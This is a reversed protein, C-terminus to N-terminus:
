NKEYMVELGSDPHYTWSATIDNLTQTQRGDMSRTELMRQYVSEPFGFKANILSIADLADFDTQEEIDFPNTDIALYSGDSAVAAWAPDCLDSYIKKLNPGSSGTLLIIVIIVIAAAGAILPVPSKKKKNVVAANFQEIKATASRDVPLDVNQGCKYCFRQGKQLEAGCKVCFVSKLTERKTGCKPCFEQGEGLPGGCNSCV